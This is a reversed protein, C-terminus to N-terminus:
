EDFAGREYASSERSQPFRKKLQGGLQAVADRNNLEREVKIGLWLSESNALESNNIRRVFFQARVLEKRQFMLLALNYGTIPNVPDVEYSRLFSAEAEIRQGGELQCQGQAMWTKAKDRYAPNALANSFMQVAEPLRSQKCLMWGYNHQVSAARPNLSLARRFSEEALPMDGLQTYILGRMNYSEFWSPDTAIAQKVEDLAITAKGDSFYLVALDLRTRARRRADPEDSDTVLDAGAGKSGPNSTSSACASLGVVAVFAWCAWLLRSSIVVGMKRLDGM